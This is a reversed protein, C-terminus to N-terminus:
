KSEENEKEKIIFMSKIWKFFLKPVKIVVVTLYRSLLMFLLSVGLLVFSTGLFGFGLSSNGVCLNIVFLIMSAFSCVFCSVFIAWLSIVISWLVAYLSVIVAFFAAFLSVWIPSGVILLVIELAKLKRRSNLKKKAIDKLPIEGAISSVIEDISGLKEVAEEESIGEDIYDDIIETYFSVRDSVENEPFNSLRSNLKRIFESKTM